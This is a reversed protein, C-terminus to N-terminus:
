LFNHDLHSKELRPGKTPFLTSCHGQFQQRKALLRGTTPWFHGLPRQLQNAPGSALLTGSHWWSCLSLWTILIYSKSSSM